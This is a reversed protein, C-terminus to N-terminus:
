HVEGTISHMREGMIDGYSSPAAQTWDHPPGEIQDDLALLCELLAGVRESSAWQEGIM